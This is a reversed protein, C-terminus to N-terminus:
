RKPVRRLFGISDISLVGSTVADEIAKRAEADTVGRHRRTLEGEVAHKGVLRGIHAYVAEIAADAAITSEHEKSRERGDPSRKFGHEALYGQLDADFRPHKSDIPGITVRKLM